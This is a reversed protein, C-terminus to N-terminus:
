FNIIKSRIGINLVLGLALMNTVVSSGGYSIFPLTIGTVPMIGMVMAINEFIQFGFMASIGIVVLAGYMDKANDAIKVIRYLFTTYLAIILLGGLMGLEEIIVSFIFDSKQVPLFNLEKQTGQFLGKGLFGGSGIAVKSMWVQYNAGISPNDPHLFADIREKQHSAMFRYMIPTAICFLLTLKGFIKMDIGAYFIMAVFMCCMVITTGLDELIIIGIFPAAYLFAYVIGKFTKLSGRNRSLYNAFLLTFSIKVLESPQMDIVGLDLWSRAGYHEVGLPTYVTLLFLISGIYLIKEFEKFNKYDYLLILCLAIAGIIYAAFQVKIDKNLIFEGDYAISGIMLISIILFCLPLIILVKDINKLLNWFYSM